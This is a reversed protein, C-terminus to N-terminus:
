IEEERNKCVALSWFRSGPIAQFVVPLHITSVFKWSCVLGACHSSGSDASLPSPLSPLPSVVPPLISRSNCSHCEDWSTHESLECLEDWSAHESPEWLEDWNVHESPECLEDWSVHESLECLKCVATTSINLTNGTCNLEEDLVLYASYTVAM